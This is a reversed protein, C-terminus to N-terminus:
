IIYYIIMQSVTSSCCFLHSLSLCWKCVILGNLNHIKEGGYKCINYSFKKCNECFNKKNHKFYNRQEYHNRATNLLKFNDIIGVSEAIQILNDIYSKSEHYYHRVIVNCQLRDCYDCLNHNHTKDARKKCVICFVYENVFVQNFSNNNCNERNECKLEKKTFKEM